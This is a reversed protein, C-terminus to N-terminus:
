KATLSIRFHLFVILDFTFQLIHVAYLCYSFKIFEHVGKSAYTGCIDRPCAIIKMCVKLGASSLCVFM